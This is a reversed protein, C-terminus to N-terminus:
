EFYSNTEVALLERTPANIVIPSTVLFIAIGKLIYNRKKCFICIEVWIIEKEALKKEWKVHFSKAFVFVYNARVIAPSDTKMTRSKSSLFAHMFFDHSINQTDTLSQSWDRIWIWSFNYFKWCVVSNTSTHLRTTGSFALNYGQLFFIFSKFGPFIDISDCGFTLM